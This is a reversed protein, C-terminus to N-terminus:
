SLYKAFPGLSSEVQPNRLSEHLREVIESEEDAGSFTPLAGYKRQFKRKLLGSCFGWVAGPEGSGDQQAAFYAAVYPSTSWDLLRTPAGHHQMLAWWCPLTTVKDLLSSDVFLHAKSRFEALAATELEIAQQDSLNLNQTIRYLSPRLQWSSNSQGRFWYHTGENSPSAPSTSELEKVFCDLSNVEVQKRDWRRDSSPENSRRSM